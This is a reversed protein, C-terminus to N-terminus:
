KVDLCKLPLLFSFTKSCQVNWKFIQESYKNYNLWAAWDCCIILSYVGSEGERKKTLLVEFNLVTSGKMENYLLDFSFLGKVGKRFAIQSRHVGGEGRQDEGRRRRESSVSRHAEAWTCVRKSTCYKCLATVSLTELARLRQTWSLDLGLELTLPLTKQWEAATWVHSHSVRM